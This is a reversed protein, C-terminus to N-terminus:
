RETARVSEAALPKRRRLRCFAVLGLCAASLAVVTSSEPVSTASVNFSLSYDSTAMNEQMYVSYQGPGLPSSAGSGGQSFATLFDEGLGVTAGKRIMSLDPFDFNLTYSSYAFEMGDALGIFVRSGVGTSFSTMIMSDLQAGAPIEFSFVDATKAMYQDENEPDDPDPFYDGADGIIMVQGTVSNVGPM